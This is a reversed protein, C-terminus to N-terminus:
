KKDATKEIGMLKHYDDVTKGGSLCPEEIGRDGDVIGVFPLHNDSPAFTSLFYEKHTLDDICLRVYVFKKPDLKIHGKKLFEYFVQCRGCEERGLSVLVKKGEKKAKSCADDFDESLYDPLTYVDKGKRLEALLKKVREHEPSQAFSASSFVFLAIFSLFLYKM